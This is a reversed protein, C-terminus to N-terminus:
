KVPITLVMSKWLLTKEKESEGDPPGSGNMVNFINAWWEGYLSHVFRCDVGAVRGTYTSEDLIVTNGHAEKIRLRIVELSLRKANGQKIAARDPHSAGRLVYQPKTKWEGFDKDIFIAETGTVTYSSEVLLIDDGHVKKIIEHIEKVPIIKANRSKEIGRKIHGSGGLIDRPYASWEGYVVDVFMARENTSIYTGECLVVTDGHVVKIKGKVQEITLKKGM